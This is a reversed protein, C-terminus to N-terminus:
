VNIDELLMDGEDDEDGSVSDMESDAAASTMDGHVQTADQVYIRPQVYDNMLLIPPPRAFFSRNNFDLALDRTQDDGSDKDSEYNDEEYVTVPVIPKRLCCWLVIFLIIGLLAAAGIAVILWVWWPIGKQEKVTEIEARSLTCESANLACQWCKPDECPGCKGTTGVLGYGDSCDKCKDTDSCKLCHDVNCTICKGSLLLYNANCISCTTPTSCERCNPLNCEMCQGEATLQYGPNCGVCVRNGTAKACNPVPTICNLDTSLVFSSSVCEACQNDGSCRKCNAVQCPTCSFGDSSLQYGSMCKSCRGTNLLVECSGVPKVCKTGDNSPAYGESCGACHNDKDCIVCNTITCKACEMANPTPTYGDNCNLCTINGFFWCNAINRYCSNYDTQQGFGYGLIYGTQCGSSCTRDRYCTNNNACAFCIRETPLTVPVATVTSSLFLGIALLFNVPSFFM